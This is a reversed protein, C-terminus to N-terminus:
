TRQIVDSLHLLSEEIVGAVQACYDLKARLVLNERTLREIDRACPEGECPGSAYDEAAPHALAREFTFFHEELETLQLAAADIRIRLAGNERSLRGALASITENTNM